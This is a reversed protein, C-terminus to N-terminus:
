AHPDDEEEDEFRLGAASNLIAGMVLAPDTMWEDQDWYLYESGDPRCLRVYNGSLMGDSEDYVGSRLSWDDKLWVVVEGDEMDVLGEATGKRMFQEVKDM